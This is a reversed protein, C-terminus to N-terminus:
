DENRKEDDDISRHHHCDRSLLKHTVPRAASSHFLPIPLESDKCKEM